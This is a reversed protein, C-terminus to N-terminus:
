ILTAAQRGTECQLDNMMYQLVRLTPVNVRQTALLVTCDWM